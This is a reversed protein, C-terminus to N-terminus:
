KKRSWWRKCNLRNCERCVRWRKQGGRYGTNAEDYPHGKACHTKGRLQETQTRKWEKFPESRSMNTRHSVPDLHSPNVCDRNGCLHDLEAPVSGHTLEFAVRHARKM